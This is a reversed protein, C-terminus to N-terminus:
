HSVSKCRWGGASGVAWKSGRKSPRLAEESEVHESESKPDQRRWVQGGGWRGWRVQRETTCAPVQSDGLFRRRGSGRRWKGDGACSWPPDFSEESGHM